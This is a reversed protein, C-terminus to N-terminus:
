CSTPSHQCVVIEEALPGRPSEGSAGAIEPAAPRPASRRANYTSRRMAALSAFLAGEDLVIATAQRTTRTAIRENEDLRSHTRSITM